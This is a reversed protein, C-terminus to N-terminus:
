GVEIIYALPYKFLRSTSPSPIERRRHLEGREHDEDPEAPSFYGHILVSSRALVALRPM